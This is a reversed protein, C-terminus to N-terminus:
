DFPVAAECAECWEGDATWPWDDFVRLADITGCAVDGTDTDVAHRLGKPGRRPGGSGSRDRRRGQSSVLGSGLAGVVHAMPGPYPSPAGSDSIGLRGREAAVDPGLAYTLVV